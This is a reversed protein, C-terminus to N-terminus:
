HHYASIAYTTKFGVVTYDRGRHGRNQLKFLPESVLAYIWKSLKVSIFIVSQNRHTCINVYKTLKNCFVLIFVTFIFLLDLM